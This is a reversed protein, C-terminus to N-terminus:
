KYCLDLIELIVEKTLNAAEPNRLIREAYVGLEEPKVGIEELFVPAGLRRCWAKFADVGQNAIVAEDDYWNKEIGFM